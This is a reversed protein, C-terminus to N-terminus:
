PWIALIAAVFYSCTASLTRISTDFAAIPLVLALRRHDLAFGYLLPRPQSTNCMDFRRQFTM